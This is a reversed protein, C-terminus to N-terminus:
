EKKLLGVLRIPAETADKINLPLVMVFGGMPPMKGLNAVNELLIKDSTLFAQHVPFGNTPCDPSLTDIGLAAVNRTLLLNAAALSVSPFVLNNRYAEPQHWFREWGTKIMVCSGSTIIGNIAEFDTIDDPSLSYHADAKHTVDIVCCPLCLDHLKFAHISRGEPLCHSPADMHTGIGAQMHLSMIRFKTEGTSAAAYDVDIQPQFGCSGDWTPIHTDLIHTLDILQYPFTM